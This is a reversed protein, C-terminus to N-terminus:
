IKQNKLLNKIEVMVEVGKNINIPSKKFDNKNKLNMIHALEVKFETERNKKFLIKKSKKKSFIEVLDCNKKYNHQWTITKNKTYISIKKESGITYLDIELNLSKYNDYYFVNVFRDYIFNKRKKFHFNVKKKIKPVDFVKELLLLALHVAHSHEHIAGGGKNIDGLYSSFEDKLWSHANLIGKWGEKWKIDIFEIDNKKEKDLLDFLKKISPSLSHNYGCFIYKNKNIFIKKNLIKNHISLPKEILIKKFILNKKCFNLLDLHSGPPTGIIILDFLNKLKSVNKFKIIKINKNWYGYRKKFITKKMRSLAKSAKDTIYVDCGLKLSANTMHNGISGAGFILIKKM